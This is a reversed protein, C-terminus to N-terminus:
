RAYGGVTATTGTAWVRKVRAPIIAGVPFAWEVYTGEAMGITTMRVTGGSVEGLVQIAEVVEPLDETDSPVIDVLLSAPATLATTTDRFYDPPM